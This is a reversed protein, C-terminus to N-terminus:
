KKISELKPFDYFYVDDHSTLQFQWHNQDCIKTSGKPRKIIRSHAQNQEIWFEETVNNNRGFIVNSDIQFFTINEARKWESNGMNKRRIQLYLPSKYSNTFNQRKIPLPIKINYKVLLETISNSNLIEILKTFINNFERENGIEKHLPFYKDPLMVKRFDNIQRRKRVNTALSKPLIIDDDSSSSSSSSMTGNLVYEEIIAKLNNVNKWIEKFDIYGIDTENEFGNFGLMRRFNKEERVESFEFLQWFHAEHPLAEMIKKLILIPVMMIAFQERMSDPTESAIFDREFGPFHKIFSEYLQQDIERDNILEPIEGLSWYSDDIKGPFPCRDTLIVRFYNFPKVSELM